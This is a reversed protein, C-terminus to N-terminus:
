GKFRVEGEDPPILGALIRLLTSKGGGSRGLLAVIEGERVELDVGQLVPKVVQGATYTKGVNVAQLLAM